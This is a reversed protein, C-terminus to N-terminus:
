YNTNLLWFVNIKCYCNMNKTKMERDVGGDAVDGSWDAFERKLEDRIKRVYRNALYMDM